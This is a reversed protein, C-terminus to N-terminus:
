SAAAYFLPLPDERSSAGSKRKVEPLKRAIARAIATVVPVVVSNGFQRYASTDAVTIRFSNRYGMLRACERPTLRRPNRGRGQPVLIESGDKHYRASLTRAVGDLDTVTCGFGHGLAQHKRAYAQLYEWLRDSLTYKEPVRKDLIDRFRRGRDKIRPFRFPVAADLGVIYVRERHQPVVLRADIVGVFVRYKLEKELTEVIVQFTRGKDHRLLHKVNELLFAAPRKAELIRAVNFFLTGQTKDLFGHPRGLSTKKSVGALSFPQCPFGAVLVDHDPIDQPDIKTIDGHPTEGFNERYTQQARPDWESSFVCSGKAAEFALRMGGIGAFLDIFTFRAERTV